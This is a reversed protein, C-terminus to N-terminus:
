FPIPSSTSANLSLRLFAVPQIQQIPRAGDSLVGYVSDDEATLPAQAKAEVLTLRLTLEELERVDVAFLYQCDDIQKAGDEWPGEVTVLTESIL